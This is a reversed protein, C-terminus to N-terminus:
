FTLEFSQDQQLPIETKQITDIHIHQVGQLLHIVHEIQQISGQIEMLVSGDNLNKVWGTCHNKNAFTMSYYRFGVQQVHGKFVIRYRIM